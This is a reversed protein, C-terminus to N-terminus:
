SAQYQLSSNIAVASLHVRYQLRNYYSRINHTQLM